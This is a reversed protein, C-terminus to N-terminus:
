FVVRKRRVTQRFDGVIVADDAGRSTTSANDAAAVASFIDPDPFRHGHVWAMSVSCDLGTV